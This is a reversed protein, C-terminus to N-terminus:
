SQEHNNILIMNRLFVMDYILYDFSHDSDIKEEPEKLQSNKRSNFRNEGKELGPNTAPFSSPRGCKRRHCCKSSSLIRKEVARVVEVM